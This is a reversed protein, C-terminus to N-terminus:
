GRSRNPSSLASTRGTPSSGEEAIQRAKRAEAALKKAAALADKRAQVMKWAETVEERVGKDDFKPIRDPTQDIIWFLYREKSGYSDTPKLTVLTDYAYEAFPM